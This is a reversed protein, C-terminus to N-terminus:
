RAIEMEGVAQITRKSGPEGARDFFGREIEGLQARIGLDVTGLETEIVCDGVLMEEGAVIVPRVALNPVLAMAESWLETEAEPVRLRVKTSAALQGLAVRVAGTLLLPDMQSERRLIRAAVALALAVVEHEVDNLYRERQLAFEDILEAVQQKRREEAEAVDRAQARREAERGEERGRERGSEFAARVEEALRREFEAHRETEGASAAEVQDAENGDEGDADPLREGHWEWGPFSEEGPEARYEFIEIRGSAVNESTWEPQQM